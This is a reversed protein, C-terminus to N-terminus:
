SQLSRAVNLGCLWHQGMAAAKATLAEEGGIARWFGAKRKVARVHDIWREPVIGLKGLVALPPGSIRGRKGPHWDGGALDVLEIYERSSIAAVLSGSLGLIATLPMTRAYNSAGPEIAPATTQGEM